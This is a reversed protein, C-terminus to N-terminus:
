STLLDEAISDHWLWRGPSVRLVSSDSAWMLNGLGIQRGILREIWQRDVAPFRALFAGVDVGELLRLGLWLGERAADEAEVNDEVAARGPDACWAALGRRNGRRYVAGSPAYTASHASPGLGTYNCWTWYLRNHQAQHGPQGYSAIEYHVFGRTALGTEAEVLLKAQADSDPMERKGRRVLKVWPTNAEVTLAYVSVHTAGSSTLVDLDQALSGSHQKRYGLILDASVVLGAQCALEISALAQERRHVRGLEELGHADLTQVGLSVRTVGAQKLAAFLEESGHEPNIEVTWEVAGSGPFEGRVWEILGLLGDVGLLSPTGGGFYVTNYYPSLSEGQQHRSAVEAALGAFYGGV